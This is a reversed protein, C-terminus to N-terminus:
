KPEWKNCGFDASVCLAAYYGSGDVAYAAPKDPNDPMLKRQEAYEPKMEILECKRYPSEFEVFDDTDPDLFTETGVAEGFYKCTGCTNVM